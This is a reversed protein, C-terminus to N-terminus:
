QKHQERIGVGVELHCYPNNKKCCQIKVKYIYCLCLLLPFLAYEVHANTTKKCISYFFKQVHLLKNPFSISM